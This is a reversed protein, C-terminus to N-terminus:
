GRDRLTPGDVTDAAVLEGSESEINIEVGVVAFREIITPGPQFEHHLWQFIGDVALEEISRLAIGV